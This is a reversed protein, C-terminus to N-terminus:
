PIYDINSNKNYYHIHCAARTLGYVEGDELRRPCAKYWEGRWERTSWGNVATFYGLKAIPRRPGDEWREGPERNAPGYRATSMRQGCRVVDAGDVGCVYSLGSVAFQFAQVLRLAEDAKDALGGVPLDNMTIPWLTGGKPLDFPERPCSERTEIFRSYAGACSVDTLLPIRLNLGLAAAAVLCPWLVLVGLRHNLDSRELSRL